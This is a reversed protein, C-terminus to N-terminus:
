KKIKSLADKLDKSIRNLVNREQSNLSSGHKDFINDIRNLTNRAKEIHTSGGVPDGTKATHRIADATSGDGIKSGARYNDRILNLISENEVGKMLSRGVMNTSRFADGLAGFVGPIVSVGALAREGWSLGEGTFVDQGTRAEQIAIADSSGPAFNLATQYNDVLIPVLHVNSAIFSSIAILAPALQIFEGGPDM